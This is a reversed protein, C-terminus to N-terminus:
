RTEKRIKELKIKKNLSKNKDYLLSFKINHQVKIIIKKANRVEFNDAM